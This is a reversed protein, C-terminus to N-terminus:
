YKKDSKGIKFEFIYKRGNVIKREIKSWPKENM